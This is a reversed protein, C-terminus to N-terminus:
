LVEQAARLGSKVAGEISVVDCYDGCQVLTPSVRVPKAVPTLAPPVQVAVARPIRFVRLHRWDAVQPGYWKLLQGHVCDVLDARELYSPDLVTVSVLSQGSPAYGPHLDSPVTLNNIPGSGEGNLVLWRNPVPSTKAAFYVCAVTAAPTKVEQHLLQAATWADTAIVVQDASLHEGSALEVGSNTVKTVQQGLRIQEPSLRAALQLPIAQMGAAPLAALGESFMRFVFEFKRSSTTLDTELFIGGLFPRFFREIMEGSFGLERLREETTVEPRSLVADLTPGCVRRRLRLISFKDWLTGVNAFATPLLDEPHRLPDGLRSIRGPTEILAGSHFGVLNLSTYDLLRRTEPYATLLVQFGRDLLFGEHQDTRIKGGVAEAADVVLADVGLQKLRVACTLGAM